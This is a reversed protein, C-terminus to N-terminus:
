QRWNPNSLDLAGFFAAEDALALPVITKAAVQPPAPAPSQPVPIQTLAPVLAPSKPSPAGTPASVSMWGGSRLWSELKESWAAAEGSVGLQIAHGGDRPAFITNPVGNKQLEFGFITSAAPPAATDNQAHTIFTPPNFPSVHREISFREILDPAPNLGLLATRTGANQLEDTMSLVPSVLILFNPREAPEFLTAAGAALHGGASFGMMGIRDARLNWQPANKRALQLARRADQFPIPWSSLTADRRPFRYKLILGAVGRENLWRAIEHGHLDIALSGYGGGPCLVIAAGTPNQAPLYATLTAAFEGRISRNPRAPTGREVITERNEVSLEPHLPIETQAMTPSVPMLKLM